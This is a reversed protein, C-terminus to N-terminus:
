EEFKTEEKKEEEVEKEELFDLPADEVMYQMFSTDSEPLHAKRRATM